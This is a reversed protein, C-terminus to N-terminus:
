VKVGRYTKMTRHKFFYLSFNVEMSPLLNTCTVLLREIQPECQLLCWSLPTRLPSVMYNPLSIKVNQLFRSGGDELHFVHVKRNHLDICCTRGFGFIHTTIMYTDWFVM